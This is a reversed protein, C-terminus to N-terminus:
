IFIAIVINTDNYVVRKINFEKPAESKPIYLITPPAIAMNPKKLAVIAPAVWRNIDKVSPCPFISFFFLINLILRVMCKKVANTTPAKNTTAPNINKLPIKFIGAARVSAALTTYKLKIILVINVIM